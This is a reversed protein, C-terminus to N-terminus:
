LAGEIRPYSGESNMLPDDTDPGLAIREVRCLFILHDGAPIAEQLRCDFWALAGTLVAMIPAVGRQGAPFSACHERRM